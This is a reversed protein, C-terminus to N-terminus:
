EKFVIKSNTGPENNKNLDCLSYLTTAKKISLETYGDIPYFDYQGHANQVAGFLM